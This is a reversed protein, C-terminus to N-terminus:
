VFFRQWVINYIDVLPNKETQNQKTFIAMNMMESLNALTIHKNGSLSHDFLCFVQPPLMVECHLQYHSTVLISKRVESYNKKDGNTKRIKELTKRADETHRPESRKTGKIHMFECSM